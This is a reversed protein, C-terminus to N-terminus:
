TVTSKLLVLLILSGALPGSILPFIGLTTPIELFVAARQSSKVSFKIYVRSYDQPARYFFILIHFSRFHGGYFLLVEGM